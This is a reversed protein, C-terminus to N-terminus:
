FEIQGAFRRKLDHRHPFMQPCNKASLKLGGHRSAVGSILWVRLTQFVDFGFRTRFPRQFIEGCFNKMTHWETNRSFRWM